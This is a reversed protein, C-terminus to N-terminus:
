VKVPEPEHRTMKESLAHQLFKPPADAPRAERYFVEISGVTQWRYHVSSM